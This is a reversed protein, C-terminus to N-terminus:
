AAAAHAAMAEYVRLYAATMDGLACREVATRRCEAPDIADAAVIARAMDAVDSVLLGNRGDEILEELAPSRFAVVPTGSALAEMAVLSSTEPVTSPLLLCRASALLEQKDSAAVPGAFRTARGLRPVVDDEFYALHEEYPFVRGAITLTRGARRAADIALHIGKEPCIRGLTLAFDGKVGGPRWRDTDIGNRIMLVEAPRRCARRQAESVCQLTLVDCGLEFILPPYWDPWRHLTALKAGRSPMYSHFDTGHLHLVDVQENTLVRAIAARCADHARYIAPTDILPPASPLPMLRGACVSDEPAIVISTHGAAVLAADIATAIQEAGGPADPGLPALPFAVTVVTLV